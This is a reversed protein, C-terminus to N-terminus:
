KEDGRSEFQNMIEDLNALVTWTKVLTKVYKRPNCSFEAAFSHIENFADLCSKYEAKNTLKPMPTLVELTLTIHELSQEPSLNSYNM